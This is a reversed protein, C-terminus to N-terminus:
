PMPTCAGFVTVTIGDLAVAVSALGTEEVIVFSFARGSQTGQLFIQGDMKELTRIPTARNEGSAPTTSLMKKALDVEIFSPVDWKWPPGSECEGRAYCRTVQASSCLFRNAGSLDDALVPAAAALLAFAGWCGRKM